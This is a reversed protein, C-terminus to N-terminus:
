AEAKLSIYRDRQRNTYSYKSGHGRDLGLFFKNLPITLQDPAARDTQVVSISVNKQKLKFCVVSLYPTWESFIKELKEQM